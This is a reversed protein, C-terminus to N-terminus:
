QGLAQILIESKCEAVETAPLSAGSMPSRAADRSRLAVSPQARRSSGAFGPQGLRRSQRGVGAGTRRWRRYWRRQDTFADACFARRAIANDRKERARGVSGRVRRLRTALPVPHANRIWLRRSEDLGWAGSMPSRPARAPSRSPLHRHARRHSYGDDTRAGARAGGLRAVRGPVRVSTVVGTRRRRRGRRAACRRAGCRAPAVFRLTASSRAKTFLANDTRAGAERVPDCPPFAICTAAARGVSARIGFRTLSGMVRREGGTDQGAGGYGAAVRRPSRAAVRPRAASHPSPRAPKFPAYVPRAGAERVPDSPPGRPPVGGSRAPAGTTRVRLLQRPWLAHLGTGRM